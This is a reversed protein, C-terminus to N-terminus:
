WILIYREGILNDISGTVMHVEVLWFDEVLIHLFGAQIGFLGERGFDGAVLRFRVLFAVLGTGM